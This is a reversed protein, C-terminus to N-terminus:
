TVLQSLRYSRDEIKSQDIPELCDLSTTKWTQDQILELCNKFTEAQSPRLFGMTTAEAGGRSEVREIEAPNQFM